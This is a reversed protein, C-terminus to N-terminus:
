RGTEAGSAAVLAEDGARPLFPDGRLSARVAVVVDAEVPISAATLHKRSLTASMLGKGHPVAPAVAHIVEHVVVRGLAVALAHAAAADPMLAPGSPPLGIATRVGPVHIWVFPAGDFRPPTAGLVSTRAGRGAPRDLLIVRVERPRAEEGAEQRRWSVSAGMGRLLSAAEDRAVAGLASAVGAPDIWVLSLSPRVAASPPPLDLSLTGGPADLRVPPLDGAAATFPVVSAVTLVAAACV